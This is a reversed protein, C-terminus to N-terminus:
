STIKNTSPENISKQVEVNANRSKINKNQKKKEKESVTYPSLM